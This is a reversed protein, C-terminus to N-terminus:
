RLLKLDSGVHYDTIEFWKTCRAAFMKGLSDLIIAM